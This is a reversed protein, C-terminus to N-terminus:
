EDSELEAKVQEMTLLRGEAADAIGRHISAIMDPDGMIEMTEIISEFLDWRMVALAPKGKRTLAVARNDDALLEPLRELKAHAEVIPIRDAVYEPGLEM